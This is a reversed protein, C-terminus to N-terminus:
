QDDTRAWRAVYAILGLFAFLIVVLVVIQVIDM